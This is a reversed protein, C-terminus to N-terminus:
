SSQPVATQRELGESPKPPLYERSPVPTRTPHLDLVIVSQKRQEPTEIRPPSDGSGLDMEFCGSRSKFRRHRMCRVLVIVALVFAGVVGGGAMNTLINSGNGADDIYKLIQTTNM